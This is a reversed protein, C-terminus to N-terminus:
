TPLPSALSMLIQRIEEWNDEPPEENDYLWQLYYGGRPELRLDSDPRLTWRPKWGYPVLSPISDILRQYEEQSSLPGMSDVMADFKEPIVGILSRFTSKMPHFYITSGYETM